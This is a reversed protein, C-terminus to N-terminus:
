SLPRIRAAGQVPRAAAGFSDFGIFVYVGLDRAPDFTAPASTSVAAAVGVGLPLSIRGWLFALTLDGGLYLAPVPSFGAPGVDALAELHLAAGAAVVAVGFPLPHDLLALPALYDLSALVGGPQSRVRAAPFGRPLTVSDAYAAYPGGIFQAAKLGLKVADHAGFFPLSLAAVLDIEAEARSQSLIPLALTGTLELEVAKRPNLEIRGGGVSGDYAAGATLRIRTDWAGPAAALADAFTFPAASALEWDVRAGVGVTLSHSVDLVTADFLTVRTDLGAALSEVWDALPQYGLRGSVGVNVPGFDRSDTVSAFPQAQGPLWGAEAQWQAAGLLSGGVALAGVGLVVGQAGDSVVFLEPLWLYPLATDHFPSSAVSAGTWQVAQPYQEPEASGADLPGAVPTGTGAATKLCWGTSAYSVYVLLDGQMVGYVAAVPDRRVEAVTGASLDAEYLALEGTRDSSFLLLSDTRFAPFYEGQPDPGQVPRPLDANVDGVPAGPDALPVAGAMLVGLDAVYVDQFGRLNFVFAVRTGDPSIAPTSVNSESRSFLTRMGGTRADVSVLRSYPGSGQVAVLLDGHPSVAPQWLHAGRTVQRVAGADVDLRFLDSVIRTDAPRGRDVTRSTFWVAAGDSTATFSWRDSLPARALVREAGSGPDWQVIAPFSEPSTHYVYLGRETVQPRTWDGPAEPTIRTGDATAASSAYRAVLSRRMRAFIVPADDGTVKAIASWPGFFPFDLFAAMIRRFTDSGYATELWNVLAYGAVYIRGPPPFPSSYGAQELSFFDGDVIAARTYLEFLPNRGRGGRSFETEAYVAPGEVAWGPLYDLSAAALSSGFVASLSHLIGTSMSQHVFHMLEHTLLVRLWSETRAGLFSDTPAALFLDIRAPSSMTLGNADDRRGRVVCPVRAPSSGFFGTVEAYVDECFTLLEDVSQRDRPEFIFTFHATEARLWGSASQAAAGPGLCAALM